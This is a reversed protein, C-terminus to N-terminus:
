QNSQSNKLQQQFLEDMESKESSAFTEIKEKKM